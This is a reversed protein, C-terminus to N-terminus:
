PRRVRPASAGSATVNSLTEQCDAALPDLHLERAAKLATEIDAIGGARDGTAILALGRVYRTQAIHIPEKNEIAM